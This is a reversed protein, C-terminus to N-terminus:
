LTESTIATIELFGRGEPFEKIGSIAYTIGEHLVKDSRRIDRSFATLRVVFRTVLLNDWAGASMRESDSVDRRRAPIPGGLDAWDGISEGYPNKGTEHYRRIQIRRDLQSANM